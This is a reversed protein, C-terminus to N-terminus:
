LWSSGSFLNKPNKQFKSLTKPAPLFGALFRGVFIFSNPPSACVDGLNGTSFCDNAASFIKAFTVINVLVFVHSPVLNPSSFVNNLETIIPM